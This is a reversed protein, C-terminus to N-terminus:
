EHIEVEEGALTFRFVAGHPVNDFVGITGGHAEIISRCLSLGLGFSRHSDVPLSNSAIFFRDFIRPKDEDAVGPGDDAVEVVVNQGSRFSRVTITSGTPTYKLGNVILNTLVQMILHVDIRVLLLDDTHEMVVTHGSTERTVHALAESIVEDMLESTLNLKMDGDEIRTVALLNEVTDILWLSDDYIANALEHRKAPGLQGTDERLIGASGSISTLPTRLDHGISRLLNARLQENKALVAAEERERAAQDSELALAAEGVISLMISNEFAELPRKGIALGVVGFVRGGARVALYLCRAEPLTSTSAGAHKNNTFAWMAVAREYDGVLEGHEHETGAGQYLPEGLGEGEAPYFVVDVRLLKILQSMMVRARAELGQEQQLLQNTELLVRTRYANKASARANDTIRATLEAAVMATVFMIAFTVLYSKDFSELSLIPTVFCFNYLVVSLVSSLLTCLRGETTVATLLATLIYLSIISSDAFGFSRFGLGIGTAIAALGVTRAVDRTRPMDPAEQRAAHREIARASTQDPIIYIDLNPAIAILQEILSKKGFLARRAGSTEGTRGMVIKSIGSLRAFEAIQFAVDDGYVSEVHAGLQEALAMNQQLRERDGDSMAQTHPSEVFLATLQGHFAKAMRAATRVIRPNTPAPSVCVLIHESTYYDRNGIVRAADALRGMRDACKRLAIERLATLNEVTFFNDQAREAQTERYVLGAQLRELLDSPEIDVLEVQDADDFVRDPIRERVIVGTIAAVMDNLSEIHQVNVTTYVDIGARLLEEVDQYRKAHRCGPANTHALEDVLILQPARMIAADLDFERLTIGNHDVLEHPVQELGRALRATAPREHPEIYGAVVDVGRKRAAHAAQLMAYTKGVGAAYGFFIKLHGRRERQAAQDDQEIARLLRDPDVRTDSADRPM